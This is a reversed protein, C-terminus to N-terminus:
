FLVGGSVFVATFGVVFLCAGALLRGKAATGLDQVGVGTMYSLYGPLLPVVCPSFFSLLGATLAIPVALLLSGSSVVSEVSATVPWEVRHRQQALHRWGVLRNGVRRPPHLRDSGHLM